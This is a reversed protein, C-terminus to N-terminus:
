LKEVKIVKIWDDYLMKNYVRGDEKIIGTYKICEKAVNEIGRDIFRCILEETVSVESVIFRVEKHENEYTNIITAIDGVELKAYRVIEKRLDRRAQKLDYSAQIKRNLADNFKEMANM